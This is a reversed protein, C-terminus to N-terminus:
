VVIALHLPSLCHFLCSRAHHIPHGYAGLCSTLMTFTHTLIPRHHGVQTAIIVRTALHRQLRIISSISQTLRATDSNVLYKHAEDLVVVCTLIIKFSYMRYFTGVIKGNASQWQM